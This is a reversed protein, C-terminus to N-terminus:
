LFMRKWKTISNKSLGFHKAIESNNMKHIKQYDLIKLIDSKGYSRHKQNQKGIEKDRTGFIRKNLELIDIVSLEKKELLKECEQKKHPFNRNIIDSYIRQYNPQSYTEM